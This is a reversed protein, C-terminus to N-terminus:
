EPTGPNKELIEVFNPFIDFFALNGGSGLRYSLIPTLANSATGL